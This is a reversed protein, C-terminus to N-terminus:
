NRAKHGDCSATHTLRIQVARSPKARYDAGEQPVTADLMYPRFSLNPRPKTKGAAELFQKYGLWCWPCVFDSVMDVEVALNAPKSTKRKAM